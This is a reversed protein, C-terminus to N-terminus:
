HIDSYVIHLRMKHSTNTGGGLKIRGVAPYNLAPSSILYAFQLQPSTYLYDNYPAFLVLRYNGTHHTAISQVYRSVNLKYSYTTSSGTTHSIPFCGLDYINQITVNGSSGQGFAADTLAFRQTTDNPLTTDACVFLAPPTFYHESADNTNPVQEMLIEARHIIKNSITDLGPIKLHAYTGPRSDIYIVDDSTNGNPPLVNAIEGTTRDRKIYNSSACYYYNATTFYSFTTDIKGGIQARYYLTLKTTATDLLNVKLLGNGTQAANIAIGKFFRNFLSDNYFPSTSDSTNTTNISKLLKEGFTNSLKIRLQNVAKPERALTISDDLLLPYVTQSGSYTINYPAPDIVSTTSYLSDSTFAKPLIDTAIEGVSISLPQTSDGWV